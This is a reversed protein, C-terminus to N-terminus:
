KIASNIRLTKMINKIVGISEWYSWAKLIDEDAIGLQKAITENSIGSDFDAYMLAFLYM